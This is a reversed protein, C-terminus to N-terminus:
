MWRSKIMDLERLTADMCFNTGKLRVGNPNNGRAIEWDGKFSTTPDSADKCLVNSLGQGNYLNGYLALCQHLTM